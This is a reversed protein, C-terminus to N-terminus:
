KCGLSLVTSCSKPNEVWCSAMEKSSNVKVRNRQSLYVLVRTLSAASNDLIPLHELASIMRINLVGKQIGM